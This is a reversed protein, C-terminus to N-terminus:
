LDFICRKVKQFLADWSYQEVASFDINSRKSVLATNLKSNFDEFNSAFLILDAIQEQELSEMKVSVVPKRMALYEFVKLPSVSRSVKDVKFPNICVDFGLIYRPIDSKDKKGLWIINKYKDRMNKWRDRVAEECPGVFVFNKDPNMMAIYEILDYNLFYFINGIFGVVPKKIPKMDDPLNVPDASFIKKDYGNPILLIKNNLRKYEDLLTAATVILQDSRKAIAKVCDSAYKYKCPNDQYAALDDTIDFIIKNYQFLKLASAYEHNYIWFIYDRFGEKRLARNIFFSLFLQNIKNMNPWSWFPLCRPPKIILLNNDIKKVKCRFPLNTQYSSRYDNPKRVMSFSPEVYAVKFGEKVFRSMFHQKRFWPDNWYHTSICVIQKNDERMKLREQFPGAVLGCFLWTEM